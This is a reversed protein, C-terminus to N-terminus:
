YGCHGIDRLITINEKPSSLARGEINVILNSNQRNTSHQNSAAPAMKLLSNTTQQVANNESTSKMLLKFLTCYNHIFYTFM